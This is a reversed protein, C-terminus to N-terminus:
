HGGSLNLSTLSLVVESDTWGKKGACVKIHEDICKWLGSVHALDIYQPLGGLGAMGSEQKEVGYRFPLIWQSMNKM